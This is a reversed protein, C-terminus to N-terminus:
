LMSLFRRKQAANLGAYAKALKAVADVPKHSRTTPAGTSFHVSV